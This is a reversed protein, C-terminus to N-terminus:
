LSTEIGVMEKSVEWLRDRNEDDHAHPNPSRMPWGGPKFEKSRYMGIQSYFAGSNDVVEPALLCHLTTQAGDFPELLGIFASFPRLVYNQIWLPMSHKALNTRVWGPHLSVATVGSGELIQALKKAHLVNALKSQAYADWGNYKRNKFHIDEFAIKADRKMAQDHLCSSVNIIRSKPTEKLVDLLLYTLLFHGLHNIGFQAEFDDKTTRYPLNMVGANNILGDLKKYKERYVSNFSRVSSLDGLDLEIVEISANPNENLISKAEEEAADTRRCAMIVTGGQKCLQRVTELGIGSNSGTVIYKKGSLDIEFLEPDCKHVISM